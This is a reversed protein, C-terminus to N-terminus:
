SKKADREENWRWAPQTSNDGFENQVVKKGAPVIFGHAKLRRWVIDAEKRTVGMARRIEGKTFGEAEPWLNKIQAIVRELGAQDIEVEPLNRM